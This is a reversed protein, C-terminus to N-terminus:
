LICSANGRYQRLTRIEEQSKRNIKKGRRELGAMIKSKKEKVTRTTRQKDQRKVKTTIFRREKHKRIWIFVSL